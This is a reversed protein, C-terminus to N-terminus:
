ATTISVEVSNQASGHQRWNPYIRRMRREYRARNRTKRHMRELIRHAHILELDRDTLM